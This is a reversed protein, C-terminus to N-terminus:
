SDNPLRSFWMEELQQADFSWLRELLSWGATQTSLVYKNDPDQTHTYLGLVLSQCLRACVAVRLLKLEDLPLSHLSCYGAIVHTGTEIDEGLLIMYAMAIALELVYASHHSDGLDLVASVYWDGTNNQKCLLNVENIDGHIMGSQLNEFRSLINEEFQQIVDAVTATKTVDDVVFLYEKIKPANKLLWLSSYHKYAPHFFEKLILDLQATYRGVEYYLSWSKPVDKLLTGDQFTLLRVVHKKSENNDKNESVNQLKELCFYRGSCNKQPQPTSIGHKDLHMMIECQAEVFDLKKSDSSNMIKFVYGHPWLQPLYKNSSPKTVKLHYNKDDYGDLERAAEVTIGYLREALQVAGQLDTQPKIQEGLSVIQDAM